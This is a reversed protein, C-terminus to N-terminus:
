TKRRHFMGCGSKLPCSGVPSTVFHKHATYIAGRGEGKRGLVGCADPRRWGYEGNVIRHTCQEGLASFNRSFGCNKNKHGFKIVETTIPLWNSRMTCSFLLDQPPKSVTKVFLQGRDTLHLGIQLSTFSGLWVQSTSWCSVTQHVSEHLSFAGRFIEVVLNKLRLQVSMNFICWWHLINHAKSM